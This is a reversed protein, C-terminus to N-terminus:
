GSFGGFGQIPGQASTSGFEFGRSISGQSGLTSGVTAGGFINGGGFAGGVSSALTGLAQTRGSSIINGTQTNTNSTIQDIDEQGTSFIDEIAAMPTGDLTLGSTLFSSQARAARIRTEKAKSKVKAAGEAAAADASAESARVQQVASLAAFGVLAITSFAAM